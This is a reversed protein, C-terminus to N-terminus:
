SNVQADDTAICYFCKKKQEKFQIVTLLRCHDRKRRECHLSAMDLMWSTTFVEMVDYRDYMVDHQGGMVDYEDDIVDYRSVRPM